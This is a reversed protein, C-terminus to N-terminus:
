LERGRLEIMSNKFPSNSRKGVLEWEQEKEYDPISIISNWTECGIQRCYINDGKSVKYEYEENRVICNGYLYKKIEKYKLEFEGKAINEYKQEKRILM